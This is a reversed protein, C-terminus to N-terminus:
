PKTGLFDRSDSCVPTRGQASHPKIPDDIKTPVKAVEVSYQWGAVLCDIAPQLHVLVVGIM